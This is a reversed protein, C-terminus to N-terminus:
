RQRDRIKPKHAWGTPVRVLVMTNTDKEQSTARWRAELLDVSIDSMELIDSTIEYRDGLLPAM